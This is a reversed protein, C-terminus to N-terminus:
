TPNMFFFLVSTIECIWFDLLYLCTSKHSHKKTTDSSDTFWNDTFTMTQCTIPVCYLKCINNKFTHQGTDVTEIFRNRKSIMKHHFLCFSLSVWCTTFFTHSTRHRWRSTILAPEIVAASLLVGMFPSSLGSPLSVRHSDWM